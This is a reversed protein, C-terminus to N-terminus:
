ILYDTIRKWVLHANIEDGEILIDAKKYYTIRKNLTDKLDFVLDKSKFLKPRRALETGTMRKVIAEVPPNIFISIGYKKIMGINDFYCPTGGGTAVVAKGEENAVEKLCLKEVKRFYDEGRRKFIEDIAMGEKQIIRDDLDVFAISQAESLQRGLTTKGSGPLGLLFIKDSLNM